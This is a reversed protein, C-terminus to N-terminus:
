SEGWIPERLDKVLSRGMGMIVDVPSRVQTFETIYLSTHTEVAYKGCKNHKEPTFDTVYLLINVLSFAM